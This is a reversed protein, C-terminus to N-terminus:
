DNQKRWRTITMRKEVIGNEEKITAFGLANGFARSKANDSLIFGRVILTDTNDFLYSLGERCMALAEKGTGQKFELIIEKQRPRYPKFLVRGIESEVIFDDNEKTIM